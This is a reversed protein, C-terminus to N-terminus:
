EGSSEHRGGGERAAKWGQRDQLPSGPLAWVADGEIADGDEVERPALAEGAHGATTAAGQPHGRSVAGAAAEGQGLKCLLSGPCPALLEAQAQLLLLQLHQPPLYSPLSLLGRESARVAGAPRGRLPRPM